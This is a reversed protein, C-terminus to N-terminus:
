TIGSLRFILITSILSLENTVLSIAKITYKYKTTFNFDEGVNIPNVIDWRFGGLHFKGRGPYLLGIIQDKGVSM